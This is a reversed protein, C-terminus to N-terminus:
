EEEESEDKWNEPYYEDTIDAPDESLEPLEEPTPANLRQFNGSQLQQITGQFELSVTFIIRQKGKVIKTEPSVILYLPVGAIKGGSLNLLTKISSVLYTISNWAHTRFVAAGGIQGDLLLVCKLIGSPKCNGEKFYTCAKNPCEGSVYTQTKEDWNQRTEGDSSCMLRSKTYYALSTFFNDEVNNYLLIVPLKKPKEPLKTMIEAAIVFDGATNKENKYVLFHDIKQPLRNGKANQQGKIGIKIKYVEKLRPRIMKLM